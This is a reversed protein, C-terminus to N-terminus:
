LAGRDPETQDSGEGRLSDEVQLRQEHLISSPYQNVNVLIQSGLPKTLVLVDGPKANRPVYPTEERSLGIAAGGIMPFENIVSQGGTVKSEALAITERVFCHFDNM